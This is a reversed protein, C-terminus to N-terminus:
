QKSLIIRKPTSHTSCVAGSAIIIENEAARERSRSHVAEKRGNEAKVRTLEHGYFCRTAVLVDHRVRCNAKLHHKADVENAYCVGLEFWLAHNWNNESARAYVCGCLRYPSCTNPTKPHYVKTIRNFCNYPSEYHASRRICTSKQFDFKMSAAHMNNSTFHKKQM